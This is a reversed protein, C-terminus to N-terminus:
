EQCHNQNPCMKMKKPCIRAPNEGAFISFEDNADAAKCVEVLSQIFHGDINLSPVRLYNEVGLNQAMEKYDIDLEVLTESHDSIFAVPIIVPIKKDLAVRRIEQDLSPSTWKLPGVKSQYCIQFDIKSQEIQLIEALNKVINKTTEEVQFVYPDGANILKQPLGHASFLFRFEQLNKDYLKAITQKILLSHAKIFNAQNPYCCIIKSVVKKDFRSQQALFKKAFEEISTASTASSFQPYLPLLILQDPNFKKIELITESAFPKWYRMAVFVKFDGFFSLKKELAHAQALTIELLPSKGGIKSYIAQAKKVRKSSILKALLFRFPQPLGIIAHDNFLNFLFKKVSELKDPGGLNFLIVATKKNTIM